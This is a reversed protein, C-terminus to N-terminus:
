LSLCRENRSSSSEAVLNNCVGERSEVEIVLTRNNIIGQVFTQNGIDVISRNILVRTDTQLDVSAGQARFRRPEVRRWLPAFTGHIGEM